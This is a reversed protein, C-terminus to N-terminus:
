LGPTSTTVSQFRTQRATSYRESRRGFTIGCLKVATTVGAIGGGIVAIDVYLGDDLSEYDTTPTTALWVSQHRGERPRGESTENM